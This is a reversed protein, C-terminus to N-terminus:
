QNVGIISKLADIFEIYDISGYRRKSVHIDFAYKWRNQKNAPHNSIRVLRICDERLYIELYRSKSKNSYSIVVDLGLEAIRRTVHKTINKINTKLIRPRPEPVFAPKEETM